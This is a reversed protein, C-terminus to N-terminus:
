NLDVVVQVQTSPKCLDEFAKQIGEISIIDADAIMPDLSIQGRDILNLAVTWDYPESGFTTKFNLEKGAWDVPLVPVDEWALAVLVVNGQKRVINFATGLTSKAAACEFVVHPGSGDSHAISTEIVDNIAPDIVVDAGLSMAVNRRAEVPEIVIVKRAGAAKVAQMCLLGIPGAGIVVVTDGLRLKSLRVARVVVACPETLCAQLDTVNEPILLPEWENLLTYESYGRKGTSSFGELRYNYQDQKRLPAEMGIPPTGGGGIVRDGEKWTKVGPGVAAVLGSFEHGLVSGPPAIDYLFVHVDTGCIASYQIKVLVEGPGPEPIPIDEIVINQEGQYVAAKM